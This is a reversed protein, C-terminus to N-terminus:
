AKQTQQYGAYAKCVRVAFCKDRCFSVNMETEGGREPCKIKADEAATKDGAGNQFLGEGKPGAAPGNKKPPEAFPAQKQETQSQATAAPAAASQAQDTKPQTAPRGAKKKEGAVAKAAFGHFAKWFNEADELALAKLNIITRNLKKATQTIFQELIKPDADKPIAENFRALLEKQQDTLEEEAGPEPKKQTASQKEAATTAPAAKKLGAFEQNAPRAPTINVEGAGMDELEDTTRLGLLAGPCHVRAFYSAARYMFMLQPMTNWKSPMQKEGKPKLWGEAEAMKWTITPGEVTKGTKLDTAYATCSDPRPVDKDTKGQGEFKYELPSFRGYGEVLAIALKGEIGPRGHVVYMVQM